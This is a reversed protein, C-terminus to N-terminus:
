NVQKQEKLHIIMLNIMNMLIFSNLTYHLYVYHRPEDNNRFIKKYNEKDEKKVIIKM